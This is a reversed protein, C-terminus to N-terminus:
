YEDNNEKILDIANWRIGYIELSDVTSGQKMPMWDGM